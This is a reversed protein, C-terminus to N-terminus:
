YADEDDYYKTPRKKKPAYMMMAIEDETKSKRPTSPTSPTASSSSFSTSKNQIVNLFETSSRNKFFSPTTATLENEFKEVRTSM